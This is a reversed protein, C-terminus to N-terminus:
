SFKVITKNYCLKLLLLIDLRADTAIVTVFIRFRICFDVVVSESGLVLPTTMETAPFNAVNKFFAGLRPRVLPLDGFM